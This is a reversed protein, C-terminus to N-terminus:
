FLTLTSSPKNTENSKIKFLKTIKHCENIYYAKNVDYLNFNDHKVLKNMVTLYNGGDVISEREPIEKCDEVDELDFIDSQNPHTLKFKETHTLKDLGPMVKKMKHGKNSVYYRTTKQQPIGVIKEGDFQQLEFVTDGTAKLMKCFDFIDTCNNITDEVPIGKCFFDRLAIPVIKQSHDKHWDKDIEFLGKLKLKKTYFKDDEVKRITDSKKEAKNYDEEKVEQWAYEGIYNNVNVIYM